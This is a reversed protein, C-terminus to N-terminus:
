GSNDFAMEAICSSCWSAWNSVFVVKGKLESFAVPHSESNVMQVPLEEGIASKKQLGFAAVVAAVALVIATIM